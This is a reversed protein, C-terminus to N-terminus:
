WTARLDIRLLVWDIMSNTISAGSRWSADSPLVLTVARESAPEILASTGMERASRGKQFRTHIAYHVSSNAMGYAAFVNSHQKYHTEGNNVM